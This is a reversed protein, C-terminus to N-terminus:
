CKCFRLLVLTQEEVADIPSEHGGYAVIRRFHRSVKNRGSTELGRIKFETEPVYIFVQLNRKCIHLQKLCIYTNGAVVEGSHSKQIKTSRIQEHNFSVKKHTVNPWAPKIINWTVNFIPRSTVFFVNIVYLYIQTM